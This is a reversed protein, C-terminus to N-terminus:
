GSDSAQDKAVWASESADPEEGGCCVELGSPVLREAGVGERDGWFVEDGVGRGGCPGDLRCEEILAQDRADAVDVGVFREVEGADVGIVGAVLEGGVMVAGDGVGDGGGELGGDVGSAGGDAVVGIREAGCAVVLGGVMDVGAGVEGAAGALGGELGGGDGAACGNPARAALGM